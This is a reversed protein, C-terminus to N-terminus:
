GRNGQPLAKLWASDARFPRGCFCVVVADAKVSQCQGKDATRLFSRAWDSGRGCTVLMGEEFQKSLPHRGPLAPPDGAKNSLLMEWIM